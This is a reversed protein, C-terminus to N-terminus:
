GLIMKINAVVHEDLYGTSIIFRLLSIVAHESLSIGRLKTELERTLRLSKFSAVAKILLIKAEASFMFSTLPITYASAVPTEGCFIVPTKANLLIYNISYPSM